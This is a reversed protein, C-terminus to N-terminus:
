GQMWDYILATVYATAGILMAVMALYGIIALM